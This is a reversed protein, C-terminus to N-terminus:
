IAKKYLWTKPAFTYTEGQYIDAAFAPSIHFSVIQMHQAVGMCEAKILSAAKHLQPKFRSPKARGDGHALLQAFSRKPDGARILAGEPVQREDRGVECDSLPRGSPTGRTALLRAGRGIEAWIYTLDPCISWSPFCRVTSRGVGRCTDGRHLLVDSKQGQHVHRQPGNSGWTQRRCLRETRVLLMRTWRRTRALAVSRDGDVWAIVFKRHCSHTARATM